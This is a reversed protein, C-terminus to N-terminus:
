QNPVLDWKKDESLEVFKFNKLIAKILHINHYVSPSSEIFNLLENVYKEM